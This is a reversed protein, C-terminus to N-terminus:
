LGDPNLDVGNFLVWVFVSFCGFFFLVLSFRSLGLFFRMEVPSPTRLCVAERQAGPCVESHGLLHSTGEGRSVRHLRPPPNPDTKEATPHNKEYCFGRLFMSKNFKNSPKIVHKHIKNTTKHM